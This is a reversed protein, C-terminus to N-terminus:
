NNVKMKQAKLIFVAITIAMLAVLGIIIITLPLSLSFNVHLTTWGSILGFLVFLFASVLAMVREPIYKLAMAGAVLGVCDAALLALTSGIFVSIPNNPYLAAFSFTSLQTKDGIEALFFALAVTLIAGTKKSKTSCSEEGNEKRLSMLGFFIFLLSAGAKVSDQIIKISGIVSGLSVALINLAIISITIGILVQRPKYKSACAMVLLQTKDGMEMLLVMGFTTLFIGFEINM